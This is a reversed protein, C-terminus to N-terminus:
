TWPRPFVPADLMNQLFALIDRKLELERIGRRDLERVYHAAFNSLRECKLSKWLWEVPNLM